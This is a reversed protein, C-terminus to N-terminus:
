SDPLGLREFFARNRKKADRLVKDYSLIEIYANYGTHFSFFGRGDPTCKFDSHEALERLQPTLTAIAYCYFPTNKPVDITQGDDRRSKGARIQRVYDMIQKLPNDKESFDTREPRKFEVIVVSTYDANETFAVARNFIM